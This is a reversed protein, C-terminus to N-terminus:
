RRPRPARAAPPVANLPDEPWDHRPYRRMLERRLAPYHRQWFGALDRTVQVDRDNPARLHLILPLRGQLVSPTRPSGFFDQIRGGIWPDLASGRASADVTVPVDEDADKVAPSADGRADRSQAPLTTVDAVGHESSEGRHLAPHDEYVIKLSRGAPHLKLTTPTWADLKHRTIGSDDLLLSEIEIERVQSLSRVGESAEVLLERLRHVSPARSLLGHTALLALRRLTQEVREPDRVLKSLAAGRIVQALAAHVRASHGPRQETSLVLQGWCLQWESEIRERVPDFRVQEREQIQDIFDELLWDEEIAAGQEVIPRHRLSGSDRSEEVVLAVALKATRLVSSRALMASGGSAFVVSREQADGDRLLAVRDPFGALFARALAATPDHAEETVHLRRGGVSMSRVSRQLQAAGRDIRAVISRLSADRKLAGFREYPDVSADTSADRMARPLREGLLSACQAASSLCGLEAARLVVRALRPHVNLTAMQRGLHTLEGAHMAGLAALLTSAAQYGDVRPPDLWPLSEPATIGMSALMLFLETLDSRHIEPVEDFPRALYDQQSFLRICRGPATRGARGTRQIAASQAIPAIRLRPLGSWAQHSAARHLGSDIVATVGDITISTQAVNTSLILKPQESRAIARDQEQSSLEGHLVHVSFGHHTAFGECAERALRIERAGPLFVLVHGSPGSEVIEQLARLVRRELPLEPLPLYSTVIPHLPSELELLQADCHKTVAQSPLTASMVIIRLDDRGLSRQAHLALALCTDSELQREHFEDLIIAGVGQLTPDAQFRRVLVGQTCFLLRTTPGRLSEFRIQYGVREGVSEGLESAIRAAALRAAIRRPQLVIIEGDGWPMPGPDTRPDIRSAVSAGRPDVAARVERTGTSGRTAAVDLMAAPLRTTKGTGPPAVLVLNGRSMLELARPLSADIPLALRFSATDGPSM